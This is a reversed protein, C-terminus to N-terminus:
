HLINVKEAVHQRSGVSAAQGRSRGDRHHRVDQAAGRGRGRVLGLNHKGSLDALGTRLLEGTASVTRLFGKDAIRQVVASGAACMLAVLTFQWVSHLLVWGLDHVVESSVASNLISDIM